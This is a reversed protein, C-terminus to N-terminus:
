GITYQISNAELEKTLADMANATASDDTIQVIVEGGSAKAASVIDDVASEAGNYLYTAGSVRVEITTVAPAADETVAPTQEPATTTVSSNGGSEGSATSGKLIGMGNGFNFPDFLFIAALLLVIILILILIIIGGKRSKKGSRNNENKKETDAM